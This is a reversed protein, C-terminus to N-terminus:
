KSSVPILSQLLQKKDLKTIWIENDQRGYSVWIHNKDVLIGCPFVCRLPRWTKHYPPRYFSEAVLPEPSISTIAFPPHAEFTYAGMVYHAIEKGNSQVTPVKIWSHFFSIYRNGDLLAQSGGRVPGWKWAIDNTSSCVTECMGTGMLPRLIRHPQHSYEFLLEGNYVFPTWNKEYRTDKKGEYESICEPQGATFKEGDYFLEVIFMRRMEHNTVNELINNYAAFLRDGIAVLRPDQLKSPLVPNHFPLEFVQPKSIPEFKENLFVLAFPNTSKNKPNYCRFSMLLNGQWRVMSPNFAGPFEPFAIQKTELIFPQAFDEMDIVPPPSPMTPEELDGASPYDAFIFNLPDALLFHSSLFLFCIFKKM